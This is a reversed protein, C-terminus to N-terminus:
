AAEQEVCSEGDFCKGEGCDCTNIEESNEPACGCAGILCFNPFDETSECCLTTAVTGGSNTCKEELSVENEDDEDDTEEELEDCDVFEDDEDECMKELDDPDIDKDKGVVGSESITPKLNYEGTGLKVINIDFVFETTGNETIEFNKTIMLKGSPIKVEVESSNMTTEVNTVYLEIKTYKGVELETNLIEFIKNSTLKTLDASDNILVEIYGKDDEKEEDDESNTENNNEEENTENSNVDEISLTENDDTENGDEIEDEEDTDDDEGVPGFIRAKDFTVVISDFENIDVPADSIYLVFNGTGTGTQTCGSVAIIMGLVLIIPLINKNM